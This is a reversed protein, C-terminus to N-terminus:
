FQLIGEAVKNFILNEYTLNYTLARTGFMLHLKNYIEISKEIVYIKYCNIINVNGNELLEERREELLKLYRLYEM